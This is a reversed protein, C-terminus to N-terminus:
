LIVQENKRLREGIADQLRRSFISRNGLASEQRMDVLVSEPLAQKHVRQPLEVIRKAARCEFFTAVDPTASGLLVMAGCRRAREMALNKAHYRPSPTSQKYRSDHEEDLIILGLDPLNSLAASRAGL